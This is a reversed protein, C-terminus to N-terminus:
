NLNFFFMILINVFQNQIDMEKYITM